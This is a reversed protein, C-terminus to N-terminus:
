KGFSEAALQANDYIDFIKYARTIEFVLKPKPQLSALAFKGGKATFEKFFRVVVGLGTSDIYEMKSCDLVIKNAKDAHAALETKFLGESGVTLRGEIAVFLVGDSEKYSIQM